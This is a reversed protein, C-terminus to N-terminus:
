AAQDRTFVWQDENSRKPDFQYGLGSFDQLGKPEKIRNRLMFDSMAGRAKKAFFSIVKYEGGKLDKFIPTVIRAKLEKNKVAGFYENSALNVLVDSAAKELAENLAKTPISGWFRYLDKGRRTPLRTGM